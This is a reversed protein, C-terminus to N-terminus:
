SRWTSIKFVVHGEPCVFERGGTHFEPNEVDEWYRTSIQNYDYLKGCDNCQILSFRDFTLLFVIVSDFSIKCGEPIEIKIDYPIVPYEDYIRQVEQNFWDANSELYLDDPMFISMMQFVKKVTFVRTKVVISKGAFPYILKISFDNKKDM